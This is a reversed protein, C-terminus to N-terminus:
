QILAMQKKKISSWAHKSMPTSDKGDVFISQSDNKFSDDISILGCQEILVNKDISEQEETLPSMLDKMLEAAYNQNTINYYEKTHTEALKELNLM